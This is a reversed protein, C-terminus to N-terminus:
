GFYRMLGVVVGQIQIDEARLIIPHQQPSSGTLRVYEGEPFYRKLITDHNNILAVITEGPHAEQRAEIVILDGEAILEEVLAEGQARLVYTKEPAHVFTRPVNIEQPQSFLRLPQGALLHGILPLSIENQTEVLNSEEKVLAMSRSSQKKTELHGKRKLACIHKYVSGLSSLGFHSGIERYSPSYRNHAIFDQIYDVIERQKKTLGKM